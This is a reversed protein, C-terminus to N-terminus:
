TRPSLKRLEAKLKKNEEFLYELLLAVNDNFKQQRMLPLEMTNRSVNAIKRILQSKLKRTLGQENLYFPSYLSGMVDKVNNLSPLAYKMILEEPDPKDSEAIVDEKILLERIGSLLEEVREANDQKIDM